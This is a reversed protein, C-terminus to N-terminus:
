NPYRSALSAPLAEELPARGRGGKRWADPVANDWARLAQNLSLGPVSTTLWAVVDTKRPVPVSHIQGWERLLNEAQRQLSTQQGTRPGGVDAGHFKAPLNRSLLYRLDQEVRRRELPPRGRLPLRFGDWEEPRVRDYTGQLSIFPIVQGRELAAAFARKRNGLLRSECEARSRANLNDRHWPQNLGRRYGPRSPDFDKPDPGLFITAADQSKPFSERCATLAEDYSRGNALRCADDFDSYLKKIGLLWRVPTQTDKFIERLQHGFTRVADSVSAILKDDLEPGLADHSFEGSGGLIEAIRQEDFDPDEM